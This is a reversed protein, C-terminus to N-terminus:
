VSFNESLFVSFIIQIWVIHDIKFADAYGKAGVEIKINHGCKNQWPWELISYNWTGYVSDTITCQINTTNIKVRDKCIELLKVSKSNRYMSRNTSVERLTEQLYKLV